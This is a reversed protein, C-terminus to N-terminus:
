EEAEEGGPPAFNHAFSLKTKWVPVMNQPIVNSNNGVVSRECKSKM